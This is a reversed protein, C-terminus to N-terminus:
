LLRTAVAIALVAYFAAISDDLMVGFGGKVRRDILGIPPPKAIDFVRFCVYAFVQWLLTPPTFALVFLFAVIEDWVLGSYDAVGLARSAVDCAWVGLAFLLILFLLFQWAALQPAFLWYIPIAVLTGVSGPARSLLGSGFGFAIFHAPHQCIFHWTPRPALEAFTTM